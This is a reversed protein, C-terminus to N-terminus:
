CILDNLPYAPSHLLIINKRQPFDRGQMVEQLIALVMCLKWDKGWSRIRLGVQQRIEAPTGNIEKALLSNKCKIIDAFNLTADRLINLNKNDCRLSDRAVEVARPPLPKTKGGPLIRTPVSTWPAFTAIMWAYYASSDDHLLIGRLRNIEAQLDGPEPHLLQQLTNYALPWTSIDVITNDQHNAFITSYLGIRDIFQLAHLPHPGPINQVANSLFLLVLLNSFCLITLSVACCKRWSPESM